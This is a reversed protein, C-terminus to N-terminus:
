INFWCRLAECWVARTSMQGLCVNFCCLWLLLLSFNNYLCPYSKTIAQYWNMIIVIPYFQILKGPPALLLSDAPLYLFCLNSGQTPFIRHFLAHCGVGTNKGPPYCPYPLRTLQLGHSWLSDSLVLFYCCFQTFSIHSPSGQFLMIM